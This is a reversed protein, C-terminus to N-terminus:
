SFPFCFIGCQGFWELITSLPLISAMVAWKGQNTSGSWYFSNTRILVFYMGTNLPLEIDL